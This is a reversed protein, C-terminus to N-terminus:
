TRYSLVCFLSSLSWTLVCFHSLCRFPVVDWVRLRVCQKPVRVTSYELGLGRQSGKLVGLSVKPRSYEVTHTGFCLMSHRWKKEFVGAKKLPPKGHFLLPNQHFLPPKRHFLRPTKSSFHPPKRNFFRHTEIFVATTKSSLHSLKRHFCCLHKIFVFRPTKSLFVFAKSSFLPPHQHFCRPHEIFFATKKIFFAHTKQHLYRPNEIFFDHTKSSFVHPKRHFFRPHWLMCHKPVWVTSYELGLTERPTRLPRWLPKPRSYEVTHTGLFHTSNRTQSM